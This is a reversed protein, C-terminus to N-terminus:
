LFCGIRLKSDLGEVSTAHKINPDAHMTQIEIRINNEGAFRLMKFVDSFTEPTVTFYCWIPAKNRGRNRMFLFTNPNAKIFAEKAAQWRNNAETGYELREEETITGSYLKRELEAFKTDDM